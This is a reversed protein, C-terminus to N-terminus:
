VVVKKIPLVTDTLGEGVCEASDLFAGVGCAIKGVWGDADELCQAFADQSDDVCQKFNESATCERPTGDQNQCGSGGEGPPDQAVAATEALACELNAAADAVMHPLTDSDRSPPEPVSAGFAAGPLVLLIGNVAVIGFLGLIAQSSRDRM